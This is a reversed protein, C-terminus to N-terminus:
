PLDPMILKLSPFYAAFRVRDRTILAYGAVAAHAGIFFDPLANTKQGKRRRYHMFAKGALFLAERPISLVTLDLHAMVADVEEISEYGISCEAYIVPNIAFRHTADLRELVSASWEFWDSQPDGLDTIVCTDVLVLSM